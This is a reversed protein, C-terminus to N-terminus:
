LKLVQVLYYPLQLHNDVMHYSKVELHSLVAEFRAMAVCELTATFHLPIHVPENAQAVDSTKM